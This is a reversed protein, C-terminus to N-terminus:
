KEGEPQMPWLQQKRKAETKVHSVAGPPACALQKTDRTRRKALLSCPPKILSMGLKFVLSPTTGLFIILPSNSFPPPISEPCGFDLPTHRRCPTHTPLHLGAERPGYPPKRKGARAPGLTGGVRPVHDASAPGRTSGMLLEQLRQHDPLPLHSSLGPEHNKLSKM